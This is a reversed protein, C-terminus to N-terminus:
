VGPPMENSPIEKDFSEMDIDFDKQLVEYLANTIPDNVGVLPYKNKRAIEIARAIAIFPTVPGDTQDLLEKVIETSHWGTNGDEKINKLYDKFSM